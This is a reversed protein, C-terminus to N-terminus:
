YTTQEIMQEPLRKNIGKDKKKKGSLRMIVILPASCVHLIYCHYCAVPCALINLSGRSELSM